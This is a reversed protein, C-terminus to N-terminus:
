GQAYESHASVQIDDHALKTAIWGNAWSFFGNEQDCFHGYWM